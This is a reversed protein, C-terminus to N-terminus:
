FLLCFNQMTQRHRFIPGIVDQSGIKFDFHEMPLFSESFSGLAAAHELMDCMSQGIYLFSTWDLITNAWSVKEKCNESFHSLNPTM